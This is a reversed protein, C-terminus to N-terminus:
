PQSHHALHPQQVYVPLTQHLTSFDSYHQSHVITATSALDELDGHVSVPM